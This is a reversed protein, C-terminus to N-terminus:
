LDVTIYKIDKEDIYKSIENIWDENVNCDLIVKKRKIRRM